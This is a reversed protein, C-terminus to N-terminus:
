AMIGVTMSMPSAATWIITRHAVMPSSATTVVDSSGTSADDELRDASYEELFKSQGPTSGYRAVEVQADSIM